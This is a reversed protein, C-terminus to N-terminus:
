RERARQIATHPDQEVNSLIRWADGSRRLHWYRFGGAPCLTKVVLNERDLRCSVAEVTEPEGWLLGTPNPVPELCYGLHSERESIEIAYM